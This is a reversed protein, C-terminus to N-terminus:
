SGLRVTTSAMTDNSDVAQLIPSMKICIVISHRARQNFNRSRQLTTEPKVRKANRTERHANPQQVKRKTKTMSCFQTVTITDEDSRSVSSKSRSVSAELQM